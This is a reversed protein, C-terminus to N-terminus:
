SRIAFVKLTGHPDVDVFDDQMFHVEDKLFADLTAAIEAPTFHLPRVQEAHGVRDSAWGAFIRESVTGRHRPCAADQGFHGEADKTSQLLQIRRISHCDVAWLALLTCTGTSAQERLNGFSCNPGSLLIPLLRKLGHCPSHM